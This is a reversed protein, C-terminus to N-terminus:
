FEGIDFCFLFRILFGKQLRESIFVFVIIIILSQEAIAGSDSAFLSFYIPLGITIQYENKRLFYLLVFWFFFFM